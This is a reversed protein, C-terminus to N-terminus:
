GVSLIFSAALQAAEETLSSTLPRGRNLDGRRRMDSHGGFIVRTPSINSILKFPTRVAGVNATVEFLRWVSRRPFFSAPRNEALRISVFLPGFPKVNLRFSASPCILM